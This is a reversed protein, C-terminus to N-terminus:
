ELRGYESLMTRPVYSQTRARAEVPAPPAHVQRDGSPKAESHSATAREESASVGIGYAPTPM